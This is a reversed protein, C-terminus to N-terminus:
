PAHWVLGSTDLIQSDSPLDPENRAHADQLDQQVMQMYQDKILGALIPLDIKLKGGLMIYDGTAMGPYIWQAAAMFPDSQGGTQPPLGPANLPHEQAFKMLEDPATWATYKDVTTVPQDFGGNPITRLFLIVRWIDEVSLRTGFNEMATGKGGVLIRYYREGDSDTPSTFMGKDSFDDPTPNLFQAAPGDGLGKPGHCGVCRQEFVVRGRDINNQTPELPDATLWYTREFSFVDNIDDWSLGSAETDDPKGNANYTGNAQEQKVLDPFATAPDTDGGSVSGMTQAVKQAAVRLTAEKGGSSQNFAIADSLQQTTWFNLSPMVSLPDVSRPNWYHAVHWMDPHNGGEQSLDPGTRETGLANPSQDVGYIDGPDTIRPYLYYLGSFVDQPRTYGSHCYNCGNALYLGRGRVAANSLPLWNDSAPPKYTLTPLLVVFFVVTFFALLGGLGSMLPTMLIHQQPEETAFGQPTPVNSPIRNPDDPKM